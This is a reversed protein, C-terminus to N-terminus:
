WPENDDGETSTGWDAEVAITDKKEGYNTEVQEKNAIARRAEAISDEDYAETDITAPKAGTIIMELRIPKNIRDFSSKQGWDDTEDEATVDVFNKFCGTVEIATNPKLNKRFLGALKSDEVIFTTNEITSYGIYLADLVFRGTEKGAEDREKDIGQYCITTKFDALAKFDEADFDIPKSCLSIQNPILRHKRAVEGNPKTYSNFELSGKIYIPMDDKLHESVYKAADFDAFMKNDNVVKGNEDEITELGVNIGILRYGEGPVKTRDKWAVEKTQNEAKNYYYVSRGATGNLTIYETQGEDFKVGFNCLNMDSNNKTKKTTFFGNKLVGSANGRIQFEGKTQALDFLRKKKAM